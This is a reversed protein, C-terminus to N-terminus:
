LAVGFLHFTGVWWPVVVAAALAAGATLKLVGMTVRRLKGPPRRYGYPNLHHPHGYM